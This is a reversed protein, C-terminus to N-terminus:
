EETRLKREFSFTDTATFYYLKYYPPLTIVFGITDRHTVVCTNRLSGDEHFFIILYKEQLEETNLSLTTM